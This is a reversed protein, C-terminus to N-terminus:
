TKTALSEDSATTDHRKFNATEGLAREVTYLSEVAQTQGNAVDITGEIVYGPYLQQAPLKGRRRNLLVQRRDQDGNSQSNVPWSTRREEAGGTRARASTPTDWRNAALPGYRRLYNIIHLM